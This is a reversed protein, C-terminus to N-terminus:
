WDNYLEVYSFNCRQCTHTTDVHYRSESKWEHTQTQYCKPCVCYDDDGSDWNKPHEEDRIEGCLRCVCGDWDHGSQCIHTKADLHLLGRKVAMQVIIHKDTLSNELIKRISPDDIRSLAEAAKQRQKEEPHSTLQISLPEIAASGIRVCKEMEGFEMWYWCEAEGVPQWGMKKLCNAAKWRSHSDKSHLRKILFDITKSGGRKALEDYVFNKEEFDDDLLAILRTENEQGDSMNALTKVTTLRVNSSTDKVMMSIANISRQDQIKGLTAVAMERVKSDDNHLKAILADVTSSDKFDGLAEFAAKCINFDKDELLSLLPNIARVDRLKALGNIAALRVAKNGDNLTSILPLVVRDDGTKSLSEIVAARVKPESEKLNSFLFDWTIDGYKIGCETVVKQLHIESNNLISLLPEIVRSDGIEGMCKIVSLRAEINPNWQVAFLADFSLTGLSVCKEWDELAVWFWGKDSDAPQWKFKKLSEASAKRLGSNHNRLLQVLPEIARSDGIMGLSEVVSSCVSIDESKLLNLLANVARNDGAKGLAIIAKKRVEKDKEEGSGIKYNLANILGEIDRKALLKDIDPPGFTFFTPM